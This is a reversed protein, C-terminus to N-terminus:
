YKLVPVEPVKDTELRFVTSSHLLSASFEDVWFALVVPFFRPFFLLTWSLLATLDKARSECMNLMKRQDITKKEKIKIIQGVFLANVERFTPLVPVCHNGHCPQSNSISFVSLARHINGNSAGFV